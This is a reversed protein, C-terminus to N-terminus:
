HLSFLSWTWRSLAKEKKTGWKLSNDFWISSSNPAM